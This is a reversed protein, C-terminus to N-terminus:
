KKLNVVRRSKLPVHCNACMWLEPHEVMKSARKRITSKKCKPCYVEFYFLDTMTKKHEYEPNSFIQINYGHKNMINAYHAWMGKHKCTACEKASHILEHCITNKVDERNGTLFYQKQIDIEYAQGNKFKCRGLSKSLRSNLTIPINTYPVNWKKMDQKVEKVLQDLNNM